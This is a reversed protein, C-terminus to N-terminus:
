RGIRHRRRGARVKIIEAVLAFEEELADYQKMYDPDRRWRAVAEDVPIFKRLKTAAKTV